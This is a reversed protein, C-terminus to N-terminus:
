KMHQLAKQCYELANNAIHDIEEKTLERIERAPSGLILTNPRFKGSSTVLSGAGVFCNSPIYADDLVISGMGIIVNSEITASHIIVNHGITVRDKIVIPKGTECHLNSLEQINTENGITIKAFDGRIVSNYWISTNNGIVVDGEIHVGEQILVNEGIVPKKGEYKVLM